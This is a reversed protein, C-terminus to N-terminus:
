FGLGGLGGGLGLGGIGGLGGFGGGGIGHGGIGGIGHGIGGVGGLGGLGGTKATTLLDLAIGKTAGKAAFKGFPLVEHIIPQHVVPIPLPFPVPFVKKKGVGSIALLAAAELGKKKFFHKEKKVFRFLHKAFKRHAKFARYAEVSNMLYCIFFLTLGVLLLKNLSSRHQGSM